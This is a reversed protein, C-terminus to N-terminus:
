HLCAITGPLGDKPVMTPVYSMAPAADDLVVSHRQLLLSAVVKLEMQSFAQGICLRPGGGFGVLSCPTARHEARPPAFRDPDFREPAAFVEDLRHTVWPSYIVVSGRSIHHGDFDFSETVGRALLSIPPWLREVEKLVCDLVRLEKIHEVGLPADGVIDRQEQRLRERVRPYRAMAMVFSALMSTTTEHGAFMLLIAQDVLEDESLADGDEDRASILLGLADSGPDDRRERVVGRLYDRLKDAAVLGRGYPMFSWAVRPFAATAVGLQKNLKGLRDLELEGRVGLILRAMIEFTLQQFRPHLPGHGDRVWRKLHMTTVAHMVDFYRRVGQAHFAPTMLRRNRQHVEGDQVLLAEGFLRQINKYGLRHSFRQREDLMIFRNAAPGMMATLDFGWLWFRFVSGHRRYGDLLYRGPHSLMKIPTGFWPVGAM